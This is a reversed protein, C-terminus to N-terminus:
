SSRSSYLKLLAPGRGCFRREQNDSGREEMKCGENIKWAGDVEGGWLRWGDTGLLPKPPQLRLWPGDSVVVKLADVMDSGRVEGGECDDASNDVRVGCGADQIGYSLHRLVANCERLPQCGLTWTGLDFM